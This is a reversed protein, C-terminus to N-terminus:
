EETWAYVKITGYFYKDQQSNPITDYDTWLMMSITESDQAEITSDILIYNTGTINLGDALKDDKWINNDLKSPESTWEKTSIIYRLYTVNVTTRPSREIVVRYRIKENTNNFIKFENKDDTIEVPDLDRITGKEDYVIKDAPVIAIYDNTTVVATNEFIKVNEGSNNTEKSKKETNSGISSINNGKYKIDSNEKVYYTTGNYNIVASGNTYYKGSSTEKSVTVYINDVIEYIKNNKIIISNSKRVSMTNTGNRIIAGGDEYYDITTGDKLNKSSTITAANNNKFTVDSGSINLDDANRVLYSKGDKIIEITGDHYYNLKTSGVTKTEKLYTVKNDSIYNDNIDNANRVFIDMDSSSIEASGDSYYTVKGWPYDKTKTIIVDSTKAKSNIIGKESIGYTGNNLAAIRTASNSNKNTKIATGDSYYNITFNKNDITKVLLVEGNKKFTSNKQFASKASDPTLAKNGTTVNAIYDDLTTEIEVQKIKEEESNKINKATVILSIGLITLSLILLTLFILLQHRRWFLILASPKEELIIKEEKKNLEVVEIKKRPM